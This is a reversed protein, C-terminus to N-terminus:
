DLSVYLAPDCAHDRHPLFFEDRTYSLVRLNEWVGSAPGWSSASAGLSSYRGAPTPPLRSAIRDFIDKALGGDNLAARGGKRFGENLQGSLKAHEFGVLEARRALRACESRTLVNDYVIVNSLASAFASPPEASASARVAAEGPHM